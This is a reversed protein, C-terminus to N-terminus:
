ESIKKFRVKEASNQLLIATVEGNNDTEFKCTLIEFGKVFFSTATYPVFLLQNNVNQRDVLRNGAKELKIFNTTRLHIFTDSEAVYKGEYRHLLSKPLIKEKSKSPLTYNEGIAIASIASRLQHNYPFWTNLLIYISIKKEPFRVYYSAYSLLNGAHGYWKHGNLSGITSGYGYEEGYKSIGAQNHFLEKMFAESLLIGSYFAQDFYYLDKATSYIEGAGFAFSLDNERIKTFKSDLYKYGTALYPIKDRSSDCGTNEMGAPEFIYKKMYDSYSLGTAKEIIVALLNFDSNSYNWDTGPEFLLPKRTIGALVAERTHFQLPDVGSHSVIGSTHTLLHHITLDDGRYQQPIYNAVPDQLHIVGKEVLQMIAVATFLKTISCLRFVTRNSFPINDQFDAKGYSNNVVIKNDKVVMITGNIQYGTVTQNFSSVYDDIQDSLTEPNRTCSAALTLILCCVLSISKRAHKKFLYM